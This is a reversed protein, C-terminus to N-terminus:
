QGIIKFKRSSTKNERYTEFIEMRSLYEYCEQLYRKGIAEADNAVRVVTREESAESFESTKRTIGFATVNLNQNKLFRCYVLYGMAMKLGAFQYRESAHTYYGGNMLLDYTPNATPSEANVYTDLEEYIKAGIMPLLYLNETEAIYPNLRKTDDLNEAIPRVARINALKTIM